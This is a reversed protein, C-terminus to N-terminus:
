IKGTFLYLLLNRVALSFIEATNPGISKMLTAFPGTSGLPMVPGTLILGSRAPACGAQRLKWIPNSASTAGRTQAASLAVTRRKIGTTAIQENTAVAGDAKTPPGRM